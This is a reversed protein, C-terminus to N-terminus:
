DMLQLNQQRYQRRPTNGLIQEEHVVDIDKDLWGGLAGLAKVRQLSVTALYVKGTPPYARGDPAAILDDVTRADGPAIAYYPLSANLLAGIGLVFLLAPM